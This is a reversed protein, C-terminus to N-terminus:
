VWVELKESFGNNFKKLLKPSCTIHQNVKNIENINLVVILNGRFKIINGVAHLSASTKGDM